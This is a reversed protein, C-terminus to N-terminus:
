SLKKVLEEALEPQNKDKTQQLFLFLKEAKEESGLAKKPIPIGDHKGFYLFLHASSQSLYRLESLPHQTRQGSPLRITAQGNELSLHHTGLEGNFLRGKLRWYVLFIVLSLTVLLAAFIFNDFLYAPFEGVSEIEGRSDLIAKTLFFLGILILQGYTKPDRFTQLFFVNYDAKDLKFSLDM